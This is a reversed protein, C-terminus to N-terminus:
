KKLAKEEETILARFGTATAKRIVKTEPKLAADAEVYKEYEALLGSEVAYQKVGDHYATERSLTSCCGTMAFAILGVIVLKRM